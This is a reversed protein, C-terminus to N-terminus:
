AAKFQERLAIGEQVLELIKNVEFPKHAILNVGREQMESEDLEVNWGTIVAIPVTKNIRKITEAVQWGSIEPMGLDTFVLDFEKTQFLKLGEKGDSAVEVEHNGSMLIDYLLQRVEKEDEIVLIKAKKQVTGSQELVGEDKTIKESLPLHITFATGKGESSDVLITGKHRSIIGYSISMGLGTSQVGKTTFFPDFIRNRIDEPIGVGTDAITIYAQNNERFTKIIINGGQPMADLANNILNTFVERLESASGLTPPLPSFEKQINIKIGQTEAENRWRVSTYELANDVLENIDIETFDRDDSRKRSFEQIRRVTEAGDISAREIIELSKVLDLMSKRKEKIGPPAQFQMKLLQVRGLIAALVNNFDHAVGGALEGLSKLKESQLLKHEMEKRETIDRIFTSFIAEGQMEFSFISYELVLERGDKRLGKKERVTRPLNGKTVASMKAFSEQWSEREDVPILMFAPKGLAENRSYGFIEEAKENYDIIAGHKDISIIADNANEVLGRYKEESKKLIEEFEKRETIDRITSVAGNVQDNDGKLLAANVEVDILSGDKKLWVFEYGTVTTEEFLKEVYNTAILEHEEGEPKFIHAGEGLLDEKAYGLIKATAENVVTITGENDTVIIGDTTTRFINELFENAEKIEQEAKKRDTIDRFSAVSGTVTGETDTLLAINMEVDILNSDKREWAFDVKNVVGEELLTRQYAVGKEKHYNEQPALEASRKGILEDISYGTILSATENAMTIHGDPTTVIIGDGVTRFINELFNRAERIEQEAKQRESIDRVFGTFVTGEKTEYSAYSIEAPFERGDKRIGPFSYTKGVFSDKETGLMREMSQKNNEKYREPVLCAFSKGIIEEPTYGFIVHAGSNWSKIEGSSNITLIADSASQVLSRLQGESERLSEVAKKRDSIDRIGAVARYLNGERDKLFTINVEVPCLSGDKRFWETEWHKVYGKEFLQEFMIARKKTHEEDHPGLETTYKGTLEDESYGLMHEIARNIKVICGQDDTVMIGDATTEFINQLFNRAEASEEDAKRRETIDRLIGVGGIMNEESDFLFVINSEVPVVKQDKRMFYREWNYVKGEEFLKALMEKSQTIFDQTIEITRGTTSAYAGEVSPSFETTHKGTVEEKTYGLMKLFSDNVREICGNIDVIVVPDLSSEIINDLYDRTKSLEENTQKRVNIEEQLQKNRTSLDVTRKSVLAELQKKYKELKEEAKQRETIDRLLLVVGSYNKRNYTVLELPIIDNNKKRGTVLEINFGDKELKAAIEIGKLPDAHSESYLLDIQQNIVENVQYGFLEQVSDNCMIIKGNRDVVILVDTNISSIIDELEKRKSVAERWRQYTIGLTVVLWLFIINVLFDNLPLTNYRPFFAQIRDLFDISLSFLSFIITIIAVLSLNILERNKRNTIRM